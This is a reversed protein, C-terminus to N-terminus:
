FENLIEIGFIRKMLIHFKTSHGKQPILHKQQFITKM